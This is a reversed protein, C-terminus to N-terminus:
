EAAALRAPVLKAEPDGDPEPGTRIASLLLRMEVVILVSYILVFGILTFLVTKVGHSSVAAATPLM